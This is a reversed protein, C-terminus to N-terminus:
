PRREAALEALRDSARVRPEARSIARTSRTRASSPRSPTTSRGNRRYILGLNYFLVDNTPRPARRRRSSARARAALRTKEFTVGLMYHFHGILNQTLYDKPVRPDDEGALPGSRFCSRRRRREGRARDPLRQRDSRGRARAPELEPSADLLASRTDPDFRLPPLDAEGVGQSCSTSTRAGARSSTCTSCCSSSTTTPPSSTRAPRCRACCRARRLGRRRPLPQPRLRDLRHRAPLGAARAAAARAARPLRELLVQCGLGALLALM